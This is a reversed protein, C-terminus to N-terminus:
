RGGYHSQYRRSRMSNLNQDIQSLRQRIDHVKGVDPPTANMAARLEVMLRRREQGLIEASDGGGGSDYSSSQGWDPNASRRSNPNGIAQDQRRSQYADDRAEPRAQAWHDPATWNRFKNLLWSSVMHGVIGGIMAGFPGLFSLLVGGALAGITAGVTTVGLQVWDTNKLNGSGAQWGVAAGGIAMLTKVFAGGPICSAIATGALSGAFSGATGGWFWGKTMMNAAGGEGIGWNVRRFDWDNHSLQQVVNGTYAAGVSFLAWKGASKALGVAKTKFSSNTSNHADINSNLKTRARELRSIDRQIASAMKKNTCNSLAHRQKAISLEIARRSSHLSGMDRAYSLGAKNNVWTGDALKVKGPISTKVTSPPKGHTGYYNGNTKPQLHIRANAGQGVVKPTYQVSTSAAANKAQLAGQAWSSHKAQWSHWAGTNGPSGIRANITGVRAHRGAQALDGPNFAAASGPNAATSRIWPRYPSHVPVAATSGAVSVWSGMEQVEPNDSEKIKDRFSDLESVYGKIRERTRGLFNERDQAYDKLDDVRNKVYDVWNDQEWGSPPPMSQLQEIARYADDRNQIESNFRETLHQRQSEVDYVQNIFQDDNSYFDQDDYVFQARLVPSCLAFFYLVLTGASIWRLRGRM